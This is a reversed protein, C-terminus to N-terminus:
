SVKDQESRVGMAPKPTYLVHVVRGRREVRMVLVEDSSRTTGGGHQM